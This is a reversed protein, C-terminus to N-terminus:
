PAKNPLIRRFLLMMLYHPEHVLKVAIILVMPTHYVAPALEIFLPADLAAVSPVTADLVHLYTIDQHQADAKNKDQATTVDPTEVHIYHQPTVQFTVWLMMWVFCLLNPM